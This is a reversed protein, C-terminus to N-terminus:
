GNEERIGHGEPKRAQVGTDLSPHKAQYKVAEYAIITTDTGASFLIGEAMNKQVVKKVLARVEPLLNVYESKDLTM